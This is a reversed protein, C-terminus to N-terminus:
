RCCCWWKEDQPPPSVLEPSSLLSSDLLLLASMDYTMDEDGDDDDNGQSSWGCFLPSRSHSMVRRLSSCTLLLSGRTKSFFSLLDKCVRQSSASMFGM